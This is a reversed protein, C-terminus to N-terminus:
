KKRRTIVIIIIIVIIIALLVFLVILAIEWDELSNDAETVRATTAAPTSFENIGKRAAFTGYGATNAEDRQGTSDM